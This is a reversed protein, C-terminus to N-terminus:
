VLTIHVNAKPNTANATDFLSFRFIFGHCFCIIIQIQKIAAKQASQLVGAATEIKYM